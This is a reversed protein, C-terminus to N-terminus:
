FMTTVSHRDYQNNVNEFMQKTTKYRATDHLATVVMLTTWTM